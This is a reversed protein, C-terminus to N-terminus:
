LEEYCERGARCRDSHAVERDPGLCNMTHTCWFSEDNTSPVTPDPAVEIFLGKWRLRRCLDERRRHQTSMKM